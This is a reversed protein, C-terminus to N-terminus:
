AGGSLPRPDIEGGAHAGHPASPARRRRALARGHATKNWHFPRWALELLAAWSALCILAYYAPLSALTRGGGGGGGRTM